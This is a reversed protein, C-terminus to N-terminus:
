EFTAKFLMDAKSTLQGIGIVDNNVGYKSESEIESSEVITIQGALVTGSQQILISSELELEDGLQVLDFFESYSLSQGESNFFEGDTADINMGFVQIFPQEIATVLGNGSIDDYDVNGVSRIQTLFLQGSQDYGKLKIQTTESLGNTFLGEPDNFQPPIFVDIGAVSVKDAHVNEIEVPLVLNFRPELFRIKGAFLVSGMEDLEGEVEIKIRQQLDGERGRIYRTNNMIQVQQGSLVFSSEDSIQDIMGEIIITSETDDYSQNLCTIDVVSQIESNIDFNIEVGTIVEILVGELLSGDCGSIQNINYNIIQNNIKFQNSTINSPYGTIKWESLEDVLEVRTIISNSFSDVYGSVKVEDGMELEDLSNINELFTANTVLSDINFIKLPLLGVVPGKYINILEVEDLIGQELNQSVESAKYHIKYGTGGQAKTESIDIGDEKFVTSETTEFTRLDNIKFGTGGQAKVQTNPENALVNFVALVCLIIYKYQKNM